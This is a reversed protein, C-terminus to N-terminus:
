GRNSFAFVLAQRRDASPFVPLPRAQVPGVDASRRRSFQGSANRRPAIEDFACAAHALMLNALEADSVRAPAAGAMLVRSAGPVHAVQSWSEDEPMHFLVYRPLLPKERVQLQDGRWTGITRWPLFTGVDLKEIERQVSPEAHPHTYIVGWNM